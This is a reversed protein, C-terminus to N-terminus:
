SVAGAPATRRLARDCAALHAGLADEFSMTTADFMLRRRIALEKGSFAGAREALAALAGGTDDTVEDVLGADLAADADLPVGFLVTRRIRAAGAQQVLRFMALGPWTAAGDVPVLLRVDRRAVRLDTALLADLAAGGCDGSAVAVTTMALRELRRLAREWKTLLPLSLGETWSGGPAGSVYVPVVGPGGHDEGRDCVAGIAQVTAASYPRGGDIRLELGATGTVM